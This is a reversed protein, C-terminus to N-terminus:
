FNLWKPLDVLVCAALIYVNDSKNDSIDIVTTSPAISISLFKDESDRADSSDFFQQFLHTTL